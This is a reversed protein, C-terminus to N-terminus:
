EEDQLPPRAVDPKALGPTDKLAALQRSVVRKMASATVDEYIGDNKLLEDFSSGVRGKKKM